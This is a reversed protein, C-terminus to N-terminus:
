RTATIKVMYKYTTGTYEEEKENIMKLTSDTASYDWEESYSNNDEINMKMKSNSLIKYTGEDSRFEVTNDSRFYILPGNVFEEISESGSQGNISEKSIVTQLYWKGEILSNHVSGNKRTVSEDDSCAL